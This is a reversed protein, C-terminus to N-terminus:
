NLIREPWAYINFRRPRLFGILTLGGKRAWDVALATPASLSALIPVRASLAKYALDASARGSAILTKDSLGMENLLAHGLVRDVANHRGIEERLIVLRGDAEFLGAAHTCGTARFTEQAATFHALMERLTEARVKLGLPLPEQLPASQATAAAGCAYRVLAPEAKDPQRSVPIVVKVKVPWRSPDGKGDLPPEPECARLLLLEERSRILGEGLVFGAALEEEGGPLAMVVAALKGNVEISVPRENAVLDEVSQAAFRGPSAADKSDELRLRLIELGEASQKEGKEMELSITREGLIHTM